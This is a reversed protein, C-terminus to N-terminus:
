WRRATSYDLASRPPLTTYHHAPIASADPTETTPAVTVIMAVSMANRVQCSVKTSIRPLGCDLRNQTLLAFALCCDLTRCAGLTSAYEYRAVLVPTCYCLSFLGRARCDQHHHPNSYCRSALDLFESRVPRSYKLEIQVGRLSYSIRGDKRCQTPGRSEVAQRTSLSSDVHRCENPCGDTDEAQVVAYVCVWFRSMVWVFM